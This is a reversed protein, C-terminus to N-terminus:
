NSTSADEEDPQDDNDEPLGYQHADRLDNSRQELRQEYTGFDCGVMGIVTIAAVLVAAVPILRLSIPLFSRQSTKLNMSLCEFAFNHVDFAVKNNAM